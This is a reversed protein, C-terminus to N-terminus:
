EHVANQELCQRLTQRARFLLQKVAEESRRLRRSVEALDRRGSYREEIVERAAPDLHDLCARLRQRHTSLPESPAAADVDVCLESWAMHTARHAAVHSALSERALELLRSPLESRSIPARTSQHFRLFVHRTLADADGASTMRARLYGFVLAHGSRVLEEFATADQPDVSDISTDDRPM